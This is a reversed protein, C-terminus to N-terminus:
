EERMSDLVDVVARLSVALADSVLLTDGNFEKIQTRVYDLNLPSADPRLLISNGPIIEVGPKELSASLADEFDSRRGPNASIGIVMVRKFNGSPAKPNKWSTILKTKGYVVTIAVCVMMAILIRKALWWGRHKNM